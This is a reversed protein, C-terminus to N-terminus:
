TLTLIFNAKMLHALSWAPDAAIAADLDAIPDGFFSVMRWLAQEAHVLAQSSQTSVPCDRPDNM